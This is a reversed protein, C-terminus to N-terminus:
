LPFLPDKETNFKRQIYKPTFSKVFDNNMKLNPITIDISFNSYSAYFTKGDNKKLELIAPGVIKDNEDSAIKNPIWLIKVKYGNILNLYEITIQPTKNLKETDLNQSQCSKTFLLLLLLLLLLLTVFFLSFM